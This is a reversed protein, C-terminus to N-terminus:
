EYHWGNPPAEFCAFELESLATREVSLLQLAVSAASVELTAPGPAFTGGSSVVPFSAVAAEGSIAFHIETSGGDRARDLRTIRREVLNGFTGYFLRFDAYEFDLEPRVVVLQDSQPSSANYEIVVNSRASQGSATSKTLPALPDCTLQGRVESGSDGAGSTNLRQGSPNVCYGQDCGAGQTFQLCDLDADCTLGAQSSDPDAETAGCACVTCVVVGVVWGRCHFPKRAVGSV